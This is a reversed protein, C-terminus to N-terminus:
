GEAQPALGARERGIRPDPVHESLAAEVDTLVPGPFYKSISWWPLYM